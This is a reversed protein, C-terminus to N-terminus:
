NLAWEPSTDIFASTIGKKDTLLKNEIEDMAVSIAKSKKRLVTNITKWMKSPNGHNDSIKHSYYDKVSECM